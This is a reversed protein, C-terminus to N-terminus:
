VAALETATADWGARANAKGSHMLPGVWKNLGHDYVHKFHIRHEADWQWWVDIEQAPVFRAIARCMPLNGTVKNLWNVAAAGGSFWELHVRVAGQDFHMRREVSATGAVIGILSLKASSGTQLTKLRRWPDRSHGIKVRDNEADLIFYVSGLNEHAKRWQDETLTSLVLRRAM